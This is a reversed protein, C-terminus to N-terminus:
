PSPTWNVVQVPIGGSLAEWEGGTLCTNLDSYCIRLTLVYSGEPLLLGDEWPGGCTDRPGTCNGGISLSGQWSTHFRSEGGSTNEASVGLVGYNVTDSTTNQITEIVCIREINAAYSPKPVCLTLNGSIGYKGTVPGGAPPAAPATATAAPPPASGGGGGGNNNGGGGIVIVERTQTPGPTDTPAATETPTPTITETPAATASPTFTPLPMSTPLPTATSPVFAAVTAGIAAVESTRRSEILGFGVLAGGGIVLVALILLGIVVSASIAPAKRVFEQIEGDGTEPTDDTM